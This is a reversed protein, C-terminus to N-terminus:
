QRLKPPGAMKGFVIKAGDFSVTQGGIVVKDGEAKPEPHAGSSLTLLAVRGKSTEITSAKAKPGGGTLHGDAGIGAVVILADAGSAKSFDVGVSSGGAAVVGSGDEAPQWADLKVQGIKPNGTVGAPLACFTMQQKFGWVRLRPPKDALRAGYLVSVVIDDADQWRNWFLCNGYHSDGIAKPITKEPNEAKAGFPWNVFAFLARHPYAFVDFTPGTENYQRSELPQVFHDYVWLLAPRRSPQVAGFGQCFYTAHHGGNQVLLKWGYGSSSDAGTIYMPGKDTVGHQWAREVAQRALDAYKKEGTVQYLFGFAAGDWLTFTKGTRVATAGDLLAKCRDILIKGEPTAARKRQAPVDSKRFFLRPHEGPAPPVVGEVRAPWPEEAAIWAAVGPIFAMASAVWALRCLSTVRHAISM